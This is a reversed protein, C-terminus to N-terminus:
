FYCAPSLIYVCWLQPQLMHHLPLNTSLIEARRRFLLNKHFLYHGHRNGQEALTGFLSLVLFCVHEETSSWTGNSIQIAQQSSAQVHGNVPASPQFLTLKQWCISLNLYIEYQHHPYPLDNLNFPTRPHNRSRRIAISRSIHKSCAELMRTILCVGELSQRGEELSKRTQIPSAVQYASLQRNGNLNTSITAQSEAAQTEFDPIGVMGSPTQTPARQDQSVFSTNKPSVPPPPGFAALPSYRRGHNNDFNHAPISRPSGNVPRWTAQPSVGKSVAPPISPQYSHSVQIPRSPVSASSTRPKVQASTLPPLNSGASQWSPQPIPSAQSQSQSMRSPSESM